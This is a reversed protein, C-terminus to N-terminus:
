RKTVRAKIAKFLQATDIMRRNFGKIKQTLAANSGYDGRLIPNRVIAQLLNTLRKPESRGFAYKFFENTFRIIDSNKKEFPKKLYNFGLNKRNSKSIQSIKVGSTKRSKKRVPGGAFKSRVDSGGLGRVGRKPLYYPGDDLVGVEFSYKNFKGKLNEKFKKDIEIRL